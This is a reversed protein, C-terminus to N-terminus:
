QPLLHVQVQDGKKIHAIEAPMVVLCNARAFSSMMHSGQRDLISVSGDPELRGKLFQVLSGRKQFDSKATARLGRLGGSAKGQMKQLAPFVYEYFCTLASAPNGPLGFVLKSGDASVGFYLPKGPKQAVRWFVPQVGARAAADKVHDFEGVSVGGSVLLVDCAAIGEALAVSLTDLDDDCRRRFAVQLGLEAVAATLMVANSEYIQGPRLTEGPPVLESGTVLTGVSPRQCVEVEALGLNALAAVAAPNLRHGAQLVVDGEQVEEGARRVNAGEPPLTQVRIEQASILEVDEQRIVTDAGPPMMAGTFIRVSDGSGFDPSFVAAPNDGAAVVGRVRLSPQAQGTGAVAKWRIAYGDMASNDFVPLPLPATIDRSLYAGTAQELPLVVSPVSPVAALIKELAEAPTIM